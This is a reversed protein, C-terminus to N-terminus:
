GSRSGRWRLSPRPPPARPAAATMAPDTVQGNPFTGADDGASPTGVARGPWDPRRRGSEHDTAAPLRSPDATNGPPTAGGTRTVGARLGGAPALRRGARAAPLRGLDGRLLGRLLRHVGIYASDGTKTTSSRSGSRSTSWCAASARRGRRRHRDARRVHRPARSRRADRTAAAPSRRGDGQGPLDGPDDQVDLRQRHRQARVAAVFGVLFLPLSECRRRRSSSRPAGLAMAVFNLLHGPRRRVPRGAPRRGAPDALRAAPRPLDAYAAKLPTAFADAFQVQLVQGFAFGFGIFSGFTGIYLFSMIWTHASAPRRRAHARTSTARRRDPQGHILAAGVAAVVILPIYIALLLRPHAAGATALVLLGVLQVVPVGLNGGGANLGLAWGKLRQPYFANINAMSSAFNGGGVGALAAVVLLTTYSVGPELVIATPSPRSWCCRRASSRGTAAASRPWPSRTPCGCCRASWRRCRPRAPVQGAPDIGYEPGLFLVM